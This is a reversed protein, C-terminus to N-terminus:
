VNLCSRIAGMLCLWLTDLTALTDVTALLQHLVVIATSFSTTLLYVGQGM